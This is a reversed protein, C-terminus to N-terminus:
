VLAASFDGLGQGGCAAGCAGGARAACQCIDAFGVLVSLGNLRRLALIEGKIPWWGM